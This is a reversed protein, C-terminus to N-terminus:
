RCPRRAPKRPRNALHRHSSPAEECVTPQAFQSELSHWLDGVEKVAKESLFLFLFLIAFGKIVVCEWRGLRAETTDRSQYDAIGVNEKQM